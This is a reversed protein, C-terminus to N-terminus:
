SAEKPYYTIGIPYKGSLVQALVEFISNEGKEVVLGHGRFRQGGVEGHETNAPYLSTTGLGQAHRGEMHTWFRGAAWEDVTTQLSAQM